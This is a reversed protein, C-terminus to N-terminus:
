QSVGGFRTNYVIKGERSSGGKRYANRSPAVAMGLVSTLADKVDDHPPNNLVLEEELIQINGGKYHWMKQAEYKPQLTARIREEKSGEYRSPRYEEVALSLGYEAIYSKKLESVIMAQGATVEARIKKYEWKKHTSLIHQFYESIKDTRFRDIELIYVNNDCDLGVVCICTYDARKGLSFAFDISAFVNLRRDKYFWYGEEQKLMGRDFYQFNSPEIFNQTPDNPDNYYQARYQTKDIYQARKTALIKSDFGFWKGDARRQRPWLFEGTGDGRDEVKRELTEYVLSTGQLESSDDYIDEQMTQLADYLDKPHYRTGVVWEKGNPNSISALLSYQQHVKSRGENTYANEPTVVDDMVTIDSHMGVINTTLGATYVTPDRIGEYKRIPHDVSIERNTWKERKGEDTGIMLPWYKQYIRSDLIDKITKLQKEALNSTSSIYLITVAPNKTIWWAVRYAILASKQHGRPLLALQHNKADDRGWWRIVEEHIDGLVRQPAILKIFTLLDAEAAQSIRKTIDNAM